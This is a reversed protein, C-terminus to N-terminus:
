SGWAAAFRATDTFEQFASVKGDTFTFIHCWQASAPKGTKRVKWAYRGLVFVKDGAAHFEQPSFDTSELHEGVRAFFDKVGKRGKFRGITPFDKENGHVQWDADETMADVITGIEGRKFAAYLGKVQMVNTNSM